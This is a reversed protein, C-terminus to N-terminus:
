SILSLIVHLFHSARPQHCNLTSDTHSLFLLVVKLSLKLPLISPQLLIALLYNLVGPIGASFGPPPISLRKSWSASTHLDKTTKSMAFQPAVEERQRKIRILSLAALAEHKISAKSHRQQTTSKGHKGGELHEFTIVGRSQTATNSIRLSM